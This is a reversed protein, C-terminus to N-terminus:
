YNSTAEDKISLPTGESILSLSDKFKSINIGSKELSHVVREEITKNVKFDLLDSEIESAVQPILLREALMSAKNLSLMAKRNLSYDQAIFVKSIKTAHNPITSPRGLKLDMMLNFVLLDKPIVRMRTDGGIKSGIFKGMPSFNDNLVKRNKEKGLVFTEKRSVKINLSYRNILSNWDQINASHPSLKAEITRIRRKSQGARLTNRLLLVLAQEKLDFSDIPSFPNLKDSLPHFAEHSEQSPYKQAMIDAKRKLSDPDFDPVGYHSALKSIQDITENSLYFSDTRPYSADGDEYMEQMLTETDKVSIELSESVCSLYSPSDWVHTSDPLTSDKVEMLSPPDFSSVLSTIENINEFNKSNLEIDILFEKNNHIVTKQIKAIIVDENHIYNIVPTIIRGVNGKNPITPDKWDKTSCGYGVLRDYVRRSYGAIVKSPNIQRDNNLASKIGQENMSNLDLRFIPKNDKVLQSVQYAIVEGEIDSDTMILVHSSLEIQQKIFEIKKKNIPSMKKIAFTKLDVGIENAPLDFIRGKTAEIHGHHIDQSVLLKKVKEVKGPAEIIFLPRIMKQCNIM